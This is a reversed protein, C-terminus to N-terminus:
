RGEMQACEPGIGREISEPVTLTRGCRGCRGEHQISYGPPLPRLGAIVQLAWNLVAVPTATAPLKSKATLILHPAAHRQTDVLPSSLMGIYTYDHLNDPGTLLSVFHRTGTGDAFDKARVRYTYHTGAPNAVTFIARGARVFDLTIM